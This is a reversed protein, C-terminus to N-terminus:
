RWSEPDTLFFTTIALEERFSAWREALTPAPGPAAPAAFPMASSPGRPVVDLVPEPCADAWGIARVPGGRVRTMTAYGAEAM